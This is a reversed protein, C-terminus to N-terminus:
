RKLEASASRKAAAYQRRNSSPEGLPHRLLLLLTPLAPLHRGPPQRRLAPLPRTPDPPQMHLIPKQKSFHRPPQTRPRQHHPRQLKMGPVGTRVGAAASGV